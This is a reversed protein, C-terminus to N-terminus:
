VPPPSRLERHAARDTARHQDNIGGAEILHQHPRHAGLRYSLAKGDVGVMTSRVEDVYLDQADNPAIKLEAPQVGGGGKLRDFVETVPGALTETM